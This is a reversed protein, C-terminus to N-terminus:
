ITSFTVNKNLDGLLDESGTALFILKYVLHAIVAWLYVMYFLNVISHVIHKLLRILILGLNVLMHIMFGNYFTIKM